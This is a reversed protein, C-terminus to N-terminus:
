DDMGALEDVAREWAALESVEEDVLMDKEVSEM